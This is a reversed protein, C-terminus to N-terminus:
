CLEDHMKSIELTMLGILFLKINEVANELTKANLTATYKVEPHKDLSGHAYVIKVKRRKEHAFSVRDEHYVFRINEKLSHGLM